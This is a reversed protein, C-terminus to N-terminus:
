SYSEPWERFWSYIREPIPYNFQNWSFPGESTAVFECDIMPTEKPDFPNFVFLIKSQSNEIGRSRHIMSSFTSFVTGAFVNAKAAILQTLLSVVIDDGFPLDRLRSAYENDLLHDIFVANPYQKIIPAFFDSDESSDTCIVLLEDSPMIKTINDLIRDATPCEVWWDVFDGRRIHVANFKGLENSIEDALQQYAPKPRVAQVVSRFDERIDDPLLFFYSFNSLMRQPVVWMQADQNQPFEWCNPRGNSFSKVMEPSFADAGPYCFFSVCSNKGVWPLQGGSKFAIKDFQDKVLHKVPIDFLDLMKARESNPKGVAITIRDPTVLVRNALYALGVKVELELLQNSLGAVHYNPFILYKENDSM